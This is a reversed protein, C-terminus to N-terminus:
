DALRDLATLQDALWRGPPYAGAVAAMRETRARREPASMSLAAHLADATAEIDYPNILFAYDGLEVAAGAERSLVLACGDDSVIPIEKAVLNMGDRLPNVIAVHAMRYAALSRAYDDDVSLILPDWDPTGFEDVIEKAIRQISASYERYEPLDHRSPYALAVHVVRGQWEPRRRLLDRYALLGRGINKSLEARDVRVILARGGVISTLAAMRAQVDPMGARARFGPADVGLPHVGVETRRGAYEVIGQDRDVRARLIDECCRVFAEAWRATLFGAHDAALLGKLLSAAVDDPLLRFYDPPAWPTHSFHGVALDPRLERLVSPVLSLHYDQVLVRAAPAAEQALAEAFAANYDVYAAWERRFGADFLPSTATDFLMHHIFWLTSNAIGNYARAFTLPEIDLFRVPVTGTDFGALDLRGNPATGAATRDAESMAACIWLAGAQAPLAGLAAALGGAGGRCALAGEDDRTFSVPGRNSALLVNMTGEGAM